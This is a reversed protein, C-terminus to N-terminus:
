EKRASELIKVAAKYDDTNILNKITQQDPVPAGKDNNLTPFLINAIILPQEVVGAKTDSFKLSSAIGTYLITCISDGEAAHTAGSEETMGIKYDYGGGAVDNITEVLALPQGNLRTNIAPVVNYYAIKPALNEDCTGGIGNSAVSFRVSVKGDPSEFLSDTDDVSNAVNSSTFKWNEPYDLAYITSHYAVRATKLVDTKADSTTQTQKTDPKKQVFNQYFVVGLSAMLALFLIAIIIVSASAGHTAIRKNM